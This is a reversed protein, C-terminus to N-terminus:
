FGTNFDAAYHFGFQVFFAQQFPQGLAVFSGNLDDVLIM